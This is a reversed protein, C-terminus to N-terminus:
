PAGGEMLLRRGDSLTVGTAEIKTVSRGGAGVRDGDKVVVLEDTEQNYLVAKLVDGERVLGVLQLRLPPPAAVVAPPPDLTWIPADFAALEVAPRTPQRVPTAVPADPQRAPGVHPTVSLCAWVALPVCVVAGLLWRRAAQQPGILPDMAARVPNAVTDNVGGGRDRAAGRDGDDARTRDVDAGRGPAAADRRETGARIASADAREVMLKRVADSTCLLEFIARRGRYGSELCGRCGAGKCDTHVLRVLRQALVCSLSSAVLFPEVGLDLLRTVSSPADNTHLTSFVLHGTLAAQIAIRATEQDRIEGVMIVDPDQRLIHRLGAAFTVGKKTDVQTQSIPLAQGGGSEPAGLDYEIPDEITMVNVDSARGGTFSRGVINRLTAYLTTTKGSGTPGTVLVIGSSRGARDFFDREVDAPMQLASVSAHAGIQQTDLLRIVMREGFASPLTSIRLDIARHNPPRGITVTARGDQPARREAVDMRAMVKVRSIMANSLKASMRRATILVGDVRMRILTADALPQVHLDSASRSIAGFLLSDVLRVVPGKGELSLVDAEGAAAMRLLEDEDAEGGPSELAIVPVGTRASQTPESEGLAQQGYAEDIQRALGESDTVEHTCPRESGAAVALNHLVCPDTRETHLLRLGDNREVGLVLHRRAFTYSVAKLYWESAAVLSDSPSLLGDVPATERGAEAAVELAAPTM